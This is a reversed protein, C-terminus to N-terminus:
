GLQETLHKLATAEESSIVTGKAALIEAAEAGTTPADVELRDFDVQDLYYQALEPKPEDPEASIPAAGDPAVNVNGAEDDPVDPTTTSGAVDGLSQVDANGITQTETDKKEQDFIGM